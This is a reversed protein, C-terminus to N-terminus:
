NRPKINLEATYRGGTIVMEGLRQARATGPPYLNFDKIRFVKSATKDPNFEFAYKFAVSDKNIVINNNFQIMGSMNDFGFISDDIPDSFQLAGQTLDYRGVVSLRSGDTASIENNPVLAFTMDGLLKIKVGWLVDKKLNFNNASETISSNSKYTAGPLYGAAVEAVMAILLNPLNMNLNGNEFGVSGYGKLFMDINRLGFYYDTPQIGNGVNGDRDGGDIVMISTTKSGDSNKGETSLGFSFGLRQTDTVTEKTVSNTVDLNFVDGTYRSSYMAINANLNYFPLGLGWENATGDSAAIANGASVNSSSTFRGRRSIAQFESGRIASVFSYPNDPFNHVQQVYDASSTLFTTTNGGFRSTMLVSNEPMRLHRTNALNFYIDGSDFYARETSGFALPQLKSFEFGFANQGAGGIELKTEKTDDGGLMADGATTFEGRFRLNVGKSGMVTNTVGSGTGSNNSAYGLVNNLIHTNTVNNDTPATVGNMSIGRLQLYSNVMRGSAGLRILGKTDALSYTNASPATEKKTLFELNLGASTGGYTGTAAGTQDPDTVRTFDIYGHTTNPAQTKSAKPAGSAIGSSTELMLGKTEDVYFVGKGGFNFNFNKLILQNQTTAAPATKLGMYVNLNQVGLSLSAQETENFLGDPTTIDIQMPSDVQVALSGVTGNYAGSAGSPDCVASLDCISFSDVSLTFPNLTTKLSLGTRTGNSGIDVQYRGGLTLGDAPKLDRIKVTNASARLAQEPDGTTATGVSDEWYMNGIDAESYSINVDLGDQGEVDRLDNDELVQLAYCSQALLISLSLITLSFQRTKKITKKM